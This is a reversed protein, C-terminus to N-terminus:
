SDGKVARRYSPSGEVRDLATECRADLLRQEHAVSRLAGAGDLVDHTVALQRRLRRMLGADRATGDAM